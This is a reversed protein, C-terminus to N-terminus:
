LSPVVEIINIWFFYEQIKSDLNKKDLVIHIFFYYLFFKTFKSVIKYNLLM